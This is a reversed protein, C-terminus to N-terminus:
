RIDVLDLRDPLKGGTKVWRETSTKKRARKNRSVRLYEARVEPTEIFGFLAYIEYYRFVDSDLEMASLEAVSFMQAPKILALKMRGDHTM